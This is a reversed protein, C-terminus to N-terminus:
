ELYGLAKLREVEEVSLDGNRPTAWPRTGDEFSPVMSVPRATQGRETLAATIPRGMLDEGSPLGLLWLATPTADVSRVESNIAGPQVDPGILGFVGLDEISHAGSNVFVSFAGEEHKGVATHAIAILADSAVLREGYEKFLPVGAESTLALLRARGAGGEDNSLTIAPYRLVYNMSRVPGQVRRELSDLRVTAPGMRFTGKEVTGRGNDFHRRSIAIRRTAQGAGTHGHDSVVMVYGDDGVYEMALGLMRDAMKAAEFVVAKGANIRAQDAQSLEVLEQDTVAFEDWLMHLSQDHYTFPLVVLDFREPAQLWARTHGSKAADLGLRHLDDEASEARFNPLEREMADPPYADRTERSIMVGNIPYAPGTIWYDVVLVRKGREGAMDWLRKVLVQSANASFTSGVVDGSRQIIGHVQPPQGTALSTWSEPSRPSDIVLPATAGDRRLRAFNPMLGREILPDLVRWDGGDIGVIAVTAGIPQADFCGMAMFLVFLM